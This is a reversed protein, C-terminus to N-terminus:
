PHPTARSRGSGARPSSRHPTTECRRGLSQRPGRTAGSGTAPGTGSGSRRRWTTQRTTGAAGACRVCRTMARRASPTENETRAGETPMRRGPAAAGRGGLVPAAGRHVPRPAGRARRAPHRRDPPHAGREGWRLTSHLYAQWEKRKCPGDGKDSLCPVLADSAMVENMFGIISDGVRVVWDDFRVTHGADQLVEAVRTAAATDATRHSLFATKLKSGM